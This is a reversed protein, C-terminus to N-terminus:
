RKGAIVVDAGHDLPEVIFSPLAQDVRGAPEVLSAGGASPEFRLIEEGASVLEEGSVGDRVRLGATSMIVASPTGVEIGVRILPESTILEDIRTAAAAGAPQRAARPDVPPPARRPEARSPEEPAPLDPPPSGACSWGLMAIGTMAFRVARPGAAALGVPSSAAAPRTAGASDARGRRM